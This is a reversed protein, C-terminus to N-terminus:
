QQATAEPTGSSALSVDDHRSLKDVQQAMTVLGGTLLGWGLLLVIGGGVTLGAPDGEVRRSLSSVVILAGVAMLTMGWAVLAAASAGTAERIEDM